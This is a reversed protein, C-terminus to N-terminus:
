RAGATWADRYGLVVLVCTGDAIVNVGAAECAAVARASEAGPQMWVSEIGRAIAQQVVQETVPPPTVISISKVDPPLDAVSAVCPVGEIARERPHVPIARRRKQLYCRLVKNGYKDRSTSAGVVGFAPSSLFKAIRDDISPM